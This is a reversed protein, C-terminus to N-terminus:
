EIIYFMSANDSIPWAAAKGYPVVQRSSISDKQIRAGTQSNWQDMMVIGM